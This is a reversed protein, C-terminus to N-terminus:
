LNRDSSNFMSILCQQVHDRAQSKFSKRMVFALCIPSLIHALISGLIVVLHDKHFRLLGGDGFLPFFLPLPILSCCLHIFFNAWTLPTSLCIKPSSSGKKSAFVFHSFAPSITMQPQNVLLRAFDKWSQSKNKLAAMSLIFHPLIFFSFWIFFNALVNAREMWDGCLLFAGSPLPKMACNDLDICTTNLPQLWTAEKNEYM